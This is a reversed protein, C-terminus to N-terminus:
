VGSVALERILLSPMGYFGAGGADDFRLDSGVATIDKLLDFFNGAITIQEVPREIKGNKITFGDASLSFNGSVANAGSHLGALETIYLGDGMKEFLANLDDGSPVIYFNTCATGVPSRFSPKFGNGTSEVGDASASKLNYLYTKLEGNEIVAKNKTAVGESDFPANGPSDKYVGDDRLTVCGAAIKEGLKGKLLSFGKQVKEAFFIGSFCAFMNVAETNSLIIPYKGSGAPAAGLYSLAKGVAKDAMDEPDFGTFDNGIFTEAAVKVQENEEAQVVVAAFAFDSSHSLSLGLTNSIYTEGSGTSVLCHIVSKVRPDTGLARKEMRLAMDIKQDPSSLDRRHAPVEMYKESGKFLREEEASEIIEANQAANKLLAPIVELEILESYSYGMRGNILGRFSLGGSETNMYEEVGGDRVMARFSVGSGYYAECCEFGYASAGGFLKDTFEQINTM